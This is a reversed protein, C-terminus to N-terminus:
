QVVVPMSFSHSFPRVLKFLPFLGSRKRFLFRGTRRSSPNPGTLVERQTRLIFQYYDDLIRSLYSKQRHTLSSHDEIADKTIKPVAEPAPSVQYQKRMEHPGIGSIAIVPITATTPNHTISLSDIGKEETESPEEQTAEEEEEEHAEPLRTEDEDSSTSDDSVETASSEEKRDYYESSSVQSDVPSQYEMHTSGAVDYNPPLPQVSEVEYGEPIMIQGSGPLVPHYVTVMHQEQQQQGAQSQGEGQTDVATSSELAPQGDQDSSTDVSQDSSDVVPVSSELSSESSQANIEGTVSSSKGQSRLHQEQLKKSLAIIKSADTTIFVPIKPDWAQRPHRSFGSKIMVLNWTSKATSNALFNITKDPSDPIFTTSPWKLQKLMLFPSMSNFSSVSQMKVSLSVQRWLLLPFETPLLPWLHHLRHYHTVLLLQHRHLRQILHMVTSMHTNELFKLGSPMM